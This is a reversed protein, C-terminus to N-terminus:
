IDARMSQVEEVDIERELQTLIKDDINEQSWIQLLLSRQKGLVLRRALELKHSHGDRSTSINLIRHRAHFYTSLFSREEGNLHHQAYLRKIEEEAADALHKRAIGANEGEPQHHIKLWRILIPLTLGPVLLSILIVVFVIFITTDRGAYSSSEPLALVAILSVIGRMGSWALIADDALIHKCVTAQNPDNRVQIYFISHKLYVWIIRVLVMVIATLVGYGTYTIMQEVSMRSAIAHLQSGLLIFVFCNILINVVDWTTFALVRRLSSRHTIIVRSAILGNVVVALVGSFEFYDAALYTIYPIIFSFLVGVIPELCYKSFLQLVVGSAVGIFIGGVVIKSFELSADAFSFTGSLLAAVALRYLVLASADNVLSEGELITSLRSGMDFRKLVATAAAADPPSVIAGFAFALAWPLEPFLWKFLVGVVLTTAVVLGLALSFIEKWYKKFDRFSIGYAAYYLIPPLIVTLMLNPNFSIANLGPIFGIFAGGVVLAIPYPIKLKHAAGVMLIACTMLLSITQLIDM